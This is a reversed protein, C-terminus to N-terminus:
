KAELKKTVGRKSVEFDFYAYGGIHKAMDEPMRLVTYGQEKLVQVLSYEVLGSLVKASAGYQDVEWFDDATLTQVAKELEGKKARIRQKLWGTKALKRSKLRKANRAM